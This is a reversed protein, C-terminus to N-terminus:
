VRVASTSAHDLCCKVDNDSAIYHFGEIIHVLTRLSRSGYTWQSEVSKLQKDLNRTSEHRCEDLQAVAPSLKDLIEHAKTHMEKWEKLTSIIPIYESADLIVSQSTVSERQHIELHAVHDIKMPTGEIAMSGSAEGSFMIGHVGGEINTQPGHITQGQQGFVSRAREKQLADVLKQIEQAFDANEEMKEAIAAQLAVQRAKSDPKEQANALTQQASADGKFRDAVSRSLDGVLGGLKEGVTKSFVEAGKAVFPAAIAAIGLLDV